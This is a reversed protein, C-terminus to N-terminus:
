GEIPPPLAPARSELAQRIIEALAAKRDEPTMESPRLRRTDDVRMERQNTLLGGVEKAAQELITLALGNKETRIAQQLLGELINLRYGQRAIPVSEVDDLYSKRRAEFIDRWKEGAEFYSKTPDYAGIQKHTLDLDHVERFHAIIATTAQYCALM